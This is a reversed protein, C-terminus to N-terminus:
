GCEDEENDSKDEDYESKEHQNYNINLYKDHKHEEVKKFCSLKYDNIKSLNNKNFFSIKNQETLINNMNSKNLSLRSHEVSNSNYRKFKKKEKLALQIKTINKRKKEKIVKKELKCSLSNKFYFDKIKLCYDFILNLGILFFLYLYFSINGLSPFITAKSKFDFFLGYHVLLLFLFLLLFTSIFVIIPLLFIIYQTMFFLHNTVVFLISLYYLLSLYWLDPRNGKNNLIKNQICVLFMVLSIIIGRIINIIFELVSFLKKEDRSEKYLLSLNEAM